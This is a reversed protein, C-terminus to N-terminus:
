LEGRLLRPVDGSVGAAEAVLLRKLEPVRDVLGLGAERVSRMLAVDSSFLRNLADFAAASLGSDFRRWREYRELASADGPTLGIWVAEAVVDTLAAIDRFALNLGQGAIPHVGHAADGILAFRHGVYRRALHMELPWSARQGALQLRGYRGALRKEVEALFADDDFALIERARGAEESWTICSADGKLPLIAFPGGPLFHQIARGHHPLEHEVRTVIGVQDYSWGVCKIGAAERLRSRRGDAAVLLATDISRGDALQVRLYPDGATFGIAEASRLRQIAPEAGAATELAAALVDNPVITSAPEGSALRNDYALLVPRVGAELPSDTLLIERIDQAEDQVMPWVGLAELMRRPGASVASARPDRRAAPAAQREIVTISIGPGICRTLALALALGAFGGGSIVVDSKLAEM